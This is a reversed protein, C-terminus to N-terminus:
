RSPLAVRLQAAMAEMEARSAHSNKLEPTNPIVHFHAHCVDQKRGNNQEISFGTSGLARQQAVSVRRIMHMVAVTEADSLDYLNRVARRPVVLVHGPHEWGLPVFAMVLRNEAVMSVPLEGRVIRAFPNAPDYKAGLPCRLATPPPSTPSQAQASSGALMAAVIM